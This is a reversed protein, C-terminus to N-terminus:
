MAHKYFNSLAEGFKCNVVLLYLTMLHYMFALFSFFFVVFRFSVFEEIKALRSIFPCTM